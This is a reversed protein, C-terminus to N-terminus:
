RGRRGLSGRSISGRCGIRTKPASNSTRKFKPAAKPGTTDSKKVKGAPGGGFNGATIGGTTVTM